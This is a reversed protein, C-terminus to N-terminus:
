SNWIPNGVAVHIGATVDVIVIRYFKAEPDADMAFYNMQAPDLTSELLIGGDDYLQIVYEHSANYKGAFMEGAAIVLREGAFETTGGMQTDGIQMRVGVWGPTFNGARMYQMYESGAMTETYFATLSSTSPSSHDDNGYTAYVKKDLELLDVWLDYADKNWSVDSGAGTSTACLVEIGTYEGYYYDLPDESDVYGEYKPHVHCFFGGNEQVLQVLDRIDQKSLAGAKFTYGQWGDTAEAVNTFQPHGSTIVAELQKPDSFILNMHINNKGDPLDTIDTGTETGGLFTVQDNDWGEAYMHSSQRHDVITAFDMNKNIMGVRWEEITKYGDAGGVPGSSSHNHMEGFRVVRNAYAALIADIDAQEAATLGNKAGQYFTKDRVILWDGSDTTSFYQLWEDADAMYSSFVGDASVKVSSGSLMDVFNVTQGAKPILKGIKTVGQFTVDANGNVKVDGTITGNVAEFTSTYTDSTTGPITVDGQITGGLLRFISNSGAANGVSVAMGTSPATLLADEHVTVNGGNNGIAIIPVSTSSEYKTYTGSYLNVYNIGNKNNSYMVTGRATNDTKGQVVGTGMVNLAGSSIFISYGNTTTIDRGNLHLCTVTDTNGTTLYTATGEYTLDKTLYFHGGNTFVHEHTDDTLATWSVNERCVPCLAKNESDLLLNSTYNIKYTLVGAEAKIRDNLWDAVFYKEYEAANEHVNAFAGPNKVTVHAGDILRDLTVKTTDELDLMAIQVDHILTVTNIGDVNVTGTMHAGDMTLATTYTDPTTAGVMYVSGNVTAETINVTIDGGSANGVRVAKGTVSAEVTADPYINLTGGAGHMNLTYAHSAADAMQEFTGSYLNITGRKSNHHLAAGYTKTDYPTGSVVGTGMINTTGTGTYLARTNSTLNHGNLHVCVDASNSFSLFSTGGGTYNQDEKLYYHGTTMSMPSDGAVIETWTVTKKCAPCWANATGTEFTLDATYDQGCYLYGNKAYVKDGTNYPVFCDLYNAASANVTTFAGTANIKIYADPDLSKLNVYADALVSLRTLSVKGSLTMNQGPRLTINGRVTADVMEINTPHASEEMVVTGGVYCGLLRINCDRYTNNSTYIGPKGNADAMITVDEYVTLNGGADSIYIVAGNYPTGAVKKFTGGYLAFLSSASKNNIHIAAGHISKKNYGAVEGNGMINLRGSGSHFVRWNLATINHGNLHFCATQNSGPAYMFPKENDNEFVLDDPLYYHAGNAATTSATKSTMPTWTVKMECVPCYADTTGADFVLDANFADWDIEKEAGINEFSWNMGNADWKVKFADLQNQTSVTLSDYQNDLARMVAMLSVGTGTFDADQANKGINDTDAMVPGDGLDIYTNAYIKMKSRSLNAKGASESLINVVSGSSVVMGSTFNDAAVTYADDAM